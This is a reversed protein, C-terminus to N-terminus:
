SLFIISVYHQDRCSSVMNVQNQRTMAMRQIEIPRKYTANHLKTGASTSCPLETIQQLRQLQIGILPYPSKIQDQTMVSKLWVMSRERPAIKGQGKVQEAGAQM